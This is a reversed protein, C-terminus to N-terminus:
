QLIIKGVPENVFRGIIWYKLQNARASKEFADMEFPDIAALIGGSTQPDYVVDNTTSGVTDVVSGEYFAKNKLLGGPVIDESILDITKAFYPVSAISVEVGVDEQIMEKLHGVLGFGTVDTAAHVEASIMAESAGKNLSAMVALMDHVDAEDVAGEKIGTSVIGNGIPKTLILYDGPRAGRNLVIKEPHVFGTVSLGYKTEPDDVSHGGLLSVGAERLKDIGGRLIEKLMQRGFNNISYGVINLATRPIAGMAYIDSLANAAAIQGFIYADNVTPTSFDVTQVLALDETVKYVGADEFAEIGVLTNVDRPVDLNCLMNHLDGPSIKSACGSKRIYKMLDTKTSQRDEMM